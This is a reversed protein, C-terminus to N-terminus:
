EESVSAGIRSVVQYRIFRNNLYETDLWKLCEMDSTLVLFNCIDILNIKTKLQM